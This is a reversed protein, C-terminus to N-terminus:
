SKTKMPRPERWIREKEGDVLQGLVYYYVTELLTGSIVNGCEPCRLPNNFAFRGGCPCNILANEVIRRKKNDLTWPHKGPGVLMEFMKDFSSFVLVTSDKDCYLFGQDSFAAHYPHDQKAELVRHCSSCILKLAKM